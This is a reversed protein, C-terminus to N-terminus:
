MNENIVPPILIKTICKNPIKSVIQVNIYCLGDLEKLDLSARRLCTTEKSSKLSILHQITFNSDRHQFDSINTLEM